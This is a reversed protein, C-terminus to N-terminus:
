AAAKVGIQSAAYNVLDSVRYRVARVGVRVFPIRPSPKGRDHELWTASMKLFAAAGRTDVLPSPTAQDRVAPRVALIAETM